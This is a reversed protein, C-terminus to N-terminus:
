GEEIHAGRHHQKNLLIGWPGLQMQLHESFLSCGARPEQPAGPVRVWAATQM